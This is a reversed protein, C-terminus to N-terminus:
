SAGDLARPIYSRTKNLVVSVNARAASLQTYGRKVVDRGSKEAEVVLLLKDMFRAMGLTPNTDNLPPMDFIIYDFDSAKLNPMLDFFRKLAVQMPGATPPAVTALYLNESASDMSSSPQLATSLSYAPRGEFFPHVGGVGLNVDVLLVKGDGMESLSAALSAALTSSGAGETFGTVGVLKPKHTMRNLEFYLNLRDRIAEAYPRMFHDVEWSAVGSHGNGSPVILESTGRRKKRPQQLRKMPRSYPISLMLPTGLQNELEVPRKVTRNLVLETLVALGISMAIGGGALMLAIKDRKGLVAKPPSPKQVVSINPMKSPDLAEDVRAKEVAAQFYKYNTEELDRKRELDAIRSGTESLQRVREDLRAKLTDMRAQTGALRARETGIDVQSTMGGGVTPAQSGLDVFKKELDRKQREINNIETQNLKVQENEPTYKGLLDLRAQRLQNLRTVLAQYDQVDETSPAHPTATPASKPSKQKNASPTAGGTGMSEEIQRVRATQEAFETEAAAYQDEIKVVDASITGTNDAVSKIGAKAKLNKLTDETENLRARVQDAQQTVFDFAAASRHVELHKTFYRKVVEELVVTALQPDATKYSVSIIDSKPRTIVELGNSVIGAAATVTAGDGLEPVLRKPGVAEAVQVALDWSTLIEAESGIVNESTRGFGTSTSSQASAGDIPDVPSRDLVYRVLLKAESQYATQYLLYVTVAAAIGLLAGFLIKGKHKFVAFLIDNVGFASHPQGEELELAPPLTRDEISIHIFRQAPL